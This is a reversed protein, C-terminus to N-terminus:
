KPVGISAKKRVEMAQSGVTALEKRDLYGDATSFIRRYMAELRPQLARRLGEDNLIAFKLQYVGAVTPYEAETTFPVAESPIEISRAWMRTNTVPEKLGFTVRGGVTATGVLRATGGRQKILGKLMSKELAALSSFDVDLQLEPELLLQSGERDPYVMSEFSDFPGKALYGRCSVLELFDARMAPAVDLLVKPEAYVVGSNTPYGVFPGGPAGSAQSPAQWRPSVVAITLKASGTPACPPTPTFDYNPGALPSPAPSGSASMCGALATGCVVSVLTMLRSGSM